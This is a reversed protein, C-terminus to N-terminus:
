ETIDEDTPPRMTGTMIVTSTPAITRGEEAAKQQQHQEDDDSTLLPPELSAPPPSGDASSVGAAAARLREEERVVFRSLKPALLSGLLLQMSHWVILPLTYSGLAPSDQYITSILPIGLAVTKHTCGYLAMVYMKPQSHFLFRFLFWAVVMLASLILFVFAVTQEV